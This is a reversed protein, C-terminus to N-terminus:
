NQIAAATNSRKGLQYSEKRMDEVRKKIGDEMFNYYWEQMKADFASLYLYYKKNKVLSIKSDEISAERNGNPYSWFNGIVQLTGNKMEINKSQLISPNKDDEETNFDFIVGTRALANEGSYINLFPDVPGSLIIKGEMELM